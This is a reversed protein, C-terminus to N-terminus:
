PKHQLLDIAYLITISDYQHANWLYVLNEVMLVFVHRCTHILHSKLIHLAKMKYFIGACTSVKFLSHMEDKLMNM